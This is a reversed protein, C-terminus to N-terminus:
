KELFMRELNKNQEVMEIEKNKLLQWMQPLNDVAAQRGAEYYDQSNDFHTFRLFLAKKWFPLALEETILFDCGFNPSPAKQQANIAIDLSRNIVTMLKPDKIRGDLNEYMLYSQWFNSEVIRESLSNWLNRVAKPWLLSRIKNVVKRLFIQWPSFVHRTARLDIGIVLNAGADRAVEGPVVCIIGGDVLLKNGWHMPQFVVPLTCSATVAKAIDGVQLVVAESSNLDTAVFGLKPSIDEFNKNKTYYRILEEFKGLSYLGGSGKTKEILKFVIEKNLKMAFNKLQPLSNCAFSAAVVTAGSLAAIYDIPYDNEKLVELFGIYFISRSSAGSLALGVKVKPQNNM